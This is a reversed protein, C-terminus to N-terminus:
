RIKYFNLKRSPINNEKEEKRTKNENQIKKIENKNKDLFKKDVKQAQPYLLTQITSAQTKSVKFM